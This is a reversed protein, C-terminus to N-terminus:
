HLNRSLQKGRCRERHRPRHHQYEGPWTFGGKHSRHKGQNSSRYFERHYLDRSLSSGTNETSRDSKSIQEIKLLEAVCHHERGDIGWHRHWLGYPIEKGPCSYV